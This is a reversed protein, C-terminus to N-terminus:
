QIEENEDPPVNRREAPPQTDKQQGSQIDIWTSVKMAQKAGAASSFFLDKVIVLFNKKKKDEKLCAM